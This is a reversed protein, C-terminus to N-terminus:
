LLKARQGLCFHSVTGDYNFCLIHCKYLSLAAFSPPVPIEPEFAQEPQCVCKPFHGDATIRFASWRRQKQLLLAQFSDSHQGTNVARQRKNCSKKSLPSGLYSNALKHVCISSFLRWFFPPEYPKFLWSM